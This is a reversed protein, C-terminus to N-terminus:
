APTLHLPLTDFARLTNNLRRTAPGAPTIHKIRQALATLVVEGDLRAVAQGVCSHIGSGFGMHGSPRRNVDYRHPAPWKRADRNVAALCLVVKSNGPIPLGAIQTDHARTRCFTQATTEWRLAEEFAPRALSPNAHLLAYQDPM